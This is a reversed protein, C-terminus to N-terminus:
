IEKINYTMRREAEQDNRSWQLSCMMRKKIIIIKSM